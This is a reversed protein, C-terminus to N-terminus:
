RVLASTAEKALCSSSNRNSWSRIFSHEHIIWTLNRARRAIGKLASLTVNVTTPAVDRETLAQRIWEVHHARLEHWEVQEYPIQMM